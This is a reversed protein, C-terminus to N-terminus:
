KRKRFLLGGLALLALTAPEPICITDVTIYDIDAGSNLLTFSITESIPNPYIRLGFVLKRWGDGTPTFIFGLDEVKGGQPALVFYGEGLKFGEDPSPEGVPPEPLLHGRCGVEVWIEKYENAVPNNPIELIVTTMNGVWVGRRGMFYGYWGPAYGQTYGSVTINATADGYTNLDVEPAAPNDADDFTWMQYTTPAQGAPDTRWAPSGFAVGSIVILCLAMGALCYTRQRKRKTEMRTGGTKQSFLLNLRKNCLMRPTKATIIKLISPCFFAPLSGESFM